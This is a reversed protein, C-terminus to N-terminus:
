QFHVNIAKYYKSFAERFLSNWLVTIILLLAVDMNQQKWILQLM